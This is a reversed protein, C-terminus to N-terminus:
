ELPWIRASLESLTKVNAVDMEPSFYASIPTDFHLLAWRMMRESGERSRAIGSEGYGDLFAHLVERDPPWVAHMAKLFDYERHGFMSDGFDILGSIRWDGGADSMKLHVRRFDTHLLVSLDPHTFSRDVGALYAPIQRALAESLGTSQLKVANAVRERIFGQWAASKIIDRGAPVDHWERVLAGLQRSVRARSAHDLTPWVDRMSKGPVFTSVTYPWNEMIGHGILRPTEVSLRGEMLRLVAQEVPADPYFPCHLKIVARPADLWVIHSGGGDIQRSFGAPDLGEVRCIARKVEEWVDSRKWLEFYEAESAFTPIM